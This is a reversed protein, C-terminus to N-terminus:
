AIKALADMAGKLAKAFETREKVPITVDKRGELSKTMKELSYTAIQVLAAEPSLVGDRVVDNAKISAQPIAISQSTSGTSYVGMPLTDDLGHQNQREEWVADSAGSYNNLYSYEQVTDNNKYEITGVDNGYASLAGNFATAASGDDHESIHNHINTLLPPLDPMINAEQQLKNVTKRKKAVQETESVVAGGSTQRKKLEELKPKWIRKRNNVFWNTLQKIDIGCHRMLEAKEEETPYPHDIHDPSLMWNKLYETTEPSLSYKKGAHSPKYEEGSEM